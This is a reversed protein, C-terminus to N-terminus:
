FANSTITYKSRDIGLRDIEANIKDAAAKKEAPDYNRQRTVPNYVPEGIDASIYILNSYVSVSKVEFLKQLDFVKKDISDENAAEHTVWLGIKRNKNNTLGLIYGSEETNIDNFMYGGFVQSFYGSKENINLSLVGTKTVVLLGYSSTAISAVGTVSFVYKQKAGSVNYVDMRGDALLCVNNGGCFKAVTYQKDFEFSTSLNNETVVIESSKDDSEEDIKNSFLVLYKGSSSDLSRAQYESNKPKGLKVSAPDEGASKYLYAQEFLTDHVLFGNDQNIALYSRSKDLEDLVVQNSLSYDDNIRYIQHQTPADEDVEIQRFLLVSEAGNNEVFGEVMGTAGPNLIKDVYSPTHATAPRHININGYYDGCSYSLLVSKIYEACGAPNNGIFTGKRETVLKVDLKTTRLFGNASVVSFQSSTNQRVLVEYDANSVLKKITKSSTTKEFTKGNEQNTFGYTMILNNDSDRVTVEIFSHSYLWYLASLIIVAIVGLVIGRKNMVLKEAIM